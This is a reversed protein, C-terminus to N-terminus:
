ISNLINRQEPDIGLTAYRRSGSNFAGNSTPKPPLPNSTRSGQPMPRAPEPAHAALRRDRRTSQAGGGGGRGEPARPKKKRSQERIDMDKYDTKSGAIPRAVQGGHLMSLRNRQNIFSTYNGALVVGLISDEINEGSHIQALRRQIESHATRFCQFVTAIKNSGGSIDNDPNNPDIVTLRYQNQKPHPHNVKDFYGPPDMVIGTTELNFKNGYLDLFNLLVDSYHLEPDMNGSQIEPMHQMVSVVLCIISFGGLGGLFVENLGRMALMQKILVVIVPMAPYKEKWQAFTDLAVLGTDNEFSIDVKIGTQKETFKIIPVKARAVVTMTAPAAMNQNQLYSSLKWLSSKSQCFVKRGNQLYQSSVAVLDM